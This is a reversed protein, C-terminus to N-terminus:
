LLLCSVKELLSETEANQKKEAELRQQEMESKLKALQWFITGNCKNVHNKRKVQTLLQHLQTVQQEHDRSLKQKEEERLIGLELLQEKRLQNAQALEERLRVVQSELDRAIQPFYFWFM